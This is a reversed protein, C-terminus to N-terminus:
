TEYMSIDEQLHTTIVGASHKGYTLPFSRVGVVITRFGIM